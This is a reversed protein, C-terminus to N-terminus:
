RSSAPRIAISDGQSLEYAGTTVVDAGPSLNGKVAIWDGIRTGRTVPVEEAKGGSALYVKDGDDRHVVAGAPVMLAQREGVTVEATLFRGIGLNPHGPLIAADAEGLQTQTDLTASVRTVRAEFSSTAQPLRLAVSQGPHVLALDEPEIQLSAQLYRPDAIEVLDAGPRTVQGVSASVAIVVGSTPARLHTNALMQDLQARAAAAQSAAVEYRTRAQDANIRPEVGGKVLAEERLFTRRAAALQIQAQQAAAQIQPDQALEVLLEGRSVADGVRVNVALVSQAQTSSIRSVHRPDAVVTAQARVLEPELRRVVTGAQVQAPPQSDSSDKVKTAQCSALALGLFVVALASFNRM